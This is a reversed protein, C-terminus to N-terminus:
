SVQQMHKLAYRYPYSPIKQPKFIKKIELTKLAPKNILYHKGKKLLLGEQQFLTLTHFLHRYSVGLFEATETKKEGYMGNVEVELIYTALRYKLAYNQGNAFHNVRLLLKQALYKSLANMFLNDQLLITKAIAIPIALCTLKDVAMIDKTLKEVELLSLEGIMDTGHIFQVLSRKGNEHVMYIKARGQLIFYVHDLETGLTLVIEKLEYEFVAAHKMVATSSKFFLKKLEDIERILSPDKVEELTFKKM